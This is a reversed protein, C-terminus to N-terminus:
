VMWCSNCGRKIRFMKYFLLPHSPLGLLVLLCMEWSTASHSSSIPSSSGFSAGSSAQPNMSPPSSGIAGPQVITWWQESNAIMKLRYGFRDARQISGEHTEEEPMVSPSSTWSSSSWGASTSPSSTFFSIAAMAHGCISPSREGAERIGLAQALRCFCIELNCGRTSAQLETARSVGKCSRLSTM